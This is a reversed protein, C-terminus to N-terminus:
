HDTTGGDKTRGEEEDMVVKQHLDTGTGKQAQNTSQHTWNEKVEKQQPLNCKLGSMRVQAAAARM